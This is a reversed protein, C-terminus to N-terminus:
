TLRRRRWDIADVAPSWRYGLYKRINEDVPEPQGARALASPLDVQQAMFPLGIVHNVARRVDNSNNIGARHFMMADLILFSGAPATIQKEHNRAFLDTPFPAVHQTGPLVFTSGNEHAFEDLCLLANIALPKSSTWHQYNLDRHWKAQYNERNPRNLIGNQMMLVFEPGLFRTALDMLPKATAADLFAADYSLMCRAIDADNMAILDSESGIEAIQRAYTRDLGDKLSDIREASFGSALTTYGNVRLEAVAEDILDAQPLRETVGYASFTQIDSM